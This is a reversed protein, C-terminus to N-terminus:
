YLRLSKVLSMLELGMVLRVHLLKCVDRISNIKGTLVKWGGEGLHGITVIYIITSLNSLTAVFLWLWICIILGSIHIHHYLSDISQHCTNICTQSFRLPLWFPWDLFISAVELVFDLLTFVCCLIHMLCM